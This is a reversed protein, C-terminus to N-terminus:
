VLIYYYSAYAHSIYKSIMCTLGQPCFFRECCPQCDKIRSPIDKIDKKLDIKDDVNCSWGPECGSVWSTLNCNKNPKVYSASSGGELFFSQFYYRIEATTCIRDRFDGIL